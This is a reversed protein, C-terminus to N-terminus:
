HPRSKEDKLAQPRHVLPAGALWALSFELCAIADEDNVNELIAMADAMHGIAQQRAKVVTSSRGCALNRHGHTGLAQRRAVIDRLQQEIMLDVGMSSLRADATSSEGDTAPSVQEEDELVALASRLSPIAVSPGAQLQELLLIADKVSEAAVACLFEDSEENDELPSANKTPISM